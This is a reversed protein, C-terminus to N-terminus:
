SGRVADHPLSMVFSGANGKMSEASLLANLISEETAQVTAELLPDIDQNPIWEAGHLRGDDYPSSASTTFAIAFDGSGNSSVGGTRAIGLGTRRSIRRLQTPLLPADTAVVTVISGTERSRVRHERISSGARSGAITLQNRLGHNAQVMVGLTYDRGLVSVKRSSTGMGGKFEYCIAGTGGGVSGEEPTSTGSGELAAVAHEPRIHQGRIDNLLGDYIEGVVPLSDTRIGREDTWKLVADRVVGVSFTNTMMVPGSLTGSEEVWTLGTMEGNGNLVSAGSLYLRGLGEKGGPLIATVGTRVSFERGEEGSSDHIVTEHGVAVGAVDTISNSSGTTGELEVGSKRAAYGM